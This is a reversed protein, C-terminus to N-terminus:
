QHQLTEKTYEAACKETEWFSVSCVPLGFQEAQEYIWKALNEATPEVPLVLVAEGYDRLVDALPDHEVLITRHDLTQEIWTGITNKIDVFDAVMGQTNLQTNRCAIKVTGNHGHLNACKGTHHLLRHGYCFTFQRSVTFMVAMISQM